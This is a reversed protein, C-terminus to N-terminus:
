RVKEEKRQYNTKKNIREVIPDTIAVLPSIKEGAQRGKYKESIEEPSIFYTTVESSGWERNDKPYGVIVKRGPTLQM